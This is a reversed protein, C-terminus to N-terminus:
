ASILWNTGDSMVQVFNSGGGAVVSRLTTATADTVHCITGAGVSSASALNAVTTAGTRIYLPRLTGTGAAEPRLIFTNSSLDLAVREYNSADTYTRSWQMTQGATGSRQALTNSAQKILVPNSSDGLFAAFSLPVCTTCGNGGVALGIGSDTGLALGNSQATSIWCFGSAPKRISFASVGNYRVDLLLPGPSGGGAYFSSGNDTISFRLATFSQAANAWTQQLDLVPKSTQVTGGDLKLCRRLWSSGPYGSIPYM